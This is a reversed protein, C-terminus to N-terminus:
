VVEKMLYQEGVYESVWDVLQKNSIPKTRYDTASAYMALTHASFPSDATVMLVPLHRWVAHARLQRCVDVGSVGPLNIDLILLDPAVEDLLDMVRFTDSFTTVIIGQGGLVHEVRRTFFPDDDILLVRAAKSTSPGLPPVPRLNRPPEPIPISQARVFSRAAIGALYNIADVDFTSPTTGKLRDEINACVDTVWPQDFTTGIGRLRHAQRIAEAFAGPRNDLCGALSDALEFFRNPLEEIFEVSLQWLEDDVTSVGPANTQLSYSMVQCLQETFIAAQVPKHVILRVALDNVLRFYAETRRWSASVFVVDIANGQSRQIRLWEEGDGDGLCGDLVLLDFKAWQFEEEARKLSEAETVDLGREQLMTAVLRRFKSDDDVVLVRPM